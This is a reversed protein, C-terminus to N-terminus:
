ADSYGLPQPRQELVFVNNTDPCSAISVPNTFFRGTEWRLPRRTKKRSRIASLTGPTIGGSRNARWKGNEIRGVRWIRILCKLM